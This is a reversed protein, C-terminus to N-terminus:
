RTLSCTTIRLMNVGFTEWKGHEMCYTNKTPMQFICGSNWDTEEGYFGVSLVENELVGSLMICTRKLSPHFFFVPWRFSLSLSFSGPLPSRVSAQDSLQCNECFQKLSNLVNRCLHTSPFLAPLLSTFFSSPSPPPISILTQRPAPFIKCAVNVATGSVSSNLFTWFM